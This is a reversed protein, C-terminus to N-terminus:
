LEGGEEVLENEWLGDRAARLIGEMGDEGIFMANLWGAMRFGATAVLEEVIPVAGDYYTGNLERDEFGDPWTMPLVYKCMWTNTETAWQFACEEARSPDLCKGWSASVNAFRGALIEAHLSDAWNAAHRFSSGGVLEESISSDWVHHLNQHRGNFRVPISNGGRALNETHLPQHIDGLFHVVWRLSLGKERDGDELAMVRRTHNGVASVICGEKTPCDRKVVVGCSHPPEDNADIWHWPASFRGEATHAYYDAWTSASVLSQPKLIARVARAADPHLFRSALLASTRHGLMGWSYASSLLSSVILLHLPLHM